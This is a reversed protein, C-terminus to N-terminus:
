AGAVNRQEARVREVVIRYFTVRDREAEAAARREEASQRDNGREAAGADDGADTDDDDDNDRDEYDLGAIDEAAIEGLDGAFRLALALPDDDM